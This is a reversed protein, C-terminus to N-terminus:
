CKNSVSIFRWAAELVSRPDTFIAIETAKLALYNIKANKM